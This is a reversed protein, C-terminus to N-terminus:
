FNSDDFDFKIGNDKLYKYEKYTLYNAFELNFIINKNKRKAKKYNKIGKGRKRTTTRQRSCL